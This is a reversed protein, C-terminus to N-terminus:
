LRFSYCVLVRYGMREELGEFCTLEDLDTFVRIFCLEALLKLLLVVVEEILHNPSILMAVSDDVKVTDEQRVYYPQFVFDSQENSIVNM